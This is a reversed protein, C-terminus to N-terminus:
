YETLKGIAEMREQIRHITFQERILGNYERVSNHQAMVLKRSVPRVIKPLYKRLLSRSTIDFILSRHNGPSEVFDLMCLNEIEVEPSKYGGDIPKTGRAHTHPPVKGWCTHTFETLDSAEKLRRYFNNKLPNENADM